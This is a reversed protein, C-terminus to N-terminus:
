LNKMGVVTDIEAEILLDIYECFLNDRLSDSDDSLVFSELLENNSRFELHWSGVVPIDKKQVICVSNLGQAKIGLLGAIIKKEAGTLTYVIMQKVM